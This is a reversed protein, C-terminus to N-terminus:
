LDRALTKAIPEPYRIRSECETCQVRVRTIVTPKTVFVIAYQGGGRALCLDGAWQRGVGHEDTRYSALEVRDYRWVVINAHRGDFDCREALRYVHREAQRERPCRGIMTGRQVDGAPTNRVRGAHDRGNEHAGGDDFSLAV